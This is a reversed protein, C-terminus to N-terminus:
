GAEVRTTRPLAALREGACFFFDLGLPFLTANRQFPALDPLSLSATDKIGPGRLTAGEQSLAEMEVILTASRDPYEPTGIAYAELPQLAEWSGVAFMAKGPEMVPAGIHFAIWERVDACDHAGCLAVPTEPDCLTLLLVGAAVSLPAPPVAGSLIEITGPRAMANMAGRFAHSSDVPANAFGGKLVGANM